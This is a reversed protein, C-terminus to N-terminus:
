PKVPTEMERVLTDIASTLRASSPDKFRIIGRGDIIYLTPFKRVNWGRCIPGAPDTDWWCKWTIEGSQISKRVTESDSDTVVSLMVFPKDKLRAVQEREQPYLAKCPGCWNGSFTLLVVQGRYDSLKFRHGDIDQGEIDPAPKGEELNRLENLASRALDALLVKGTVATLNGYERIVTEFYQEAEKRLGQSDSAALTALYPEEWIQLHRQHLSPDANRVVIAVQAKTACYRGLALCARARLTSNKTREYVAPFFEDHGPTVSRELRAFSKLIREDNVHDRAVIKLTIAMYGEHGPPSDSAPGRTMIWVLADCAVPDKPFRQALELFRAAYEDVRPAHAAVIKRDAATKASEYAKSFARDADDYEKVLAQYEVSPSQPKGHEGRQVSPM